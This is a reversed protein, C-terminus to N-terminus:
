KFYWILEKIVDSKNDLSIYWINNKQLDYKLKEIKQKRLKKYDELKEKDALDINLFKSKFSLTLNWFLDWKEIELLENEFKDFINIVIIDNNHSLFKLKKLDFEQKDTIIFILNNKISRKKIEELSANIDFNNLNNNLLDLIRYINDKSKKYEILNLKDKYLLAWVNDNNYYASIALSYFTEILTDKKTKDESGFNMTESTDLVFLVKLDKDQEYKKVFLEWVKASAKWDIDRINDWPSYNKHEDFEMWAWSVKSKYNGFLGWDLLKKIKFEIIHLKKNIQM